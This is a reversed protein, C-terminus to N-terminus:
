LYKATEAGFVCSVMFEVQNRCLARIVTNQFSLMIDNDFIVM